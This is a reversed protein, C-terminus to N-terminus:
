IVVRMHFWYLFKQTKLTMPESDKKQEWVKWDLCKIIRSSNCLSAWPQAGSGITWGILIM